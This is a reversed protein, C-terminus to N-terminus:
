RPDGGLVIDVGGLQGQLAEEISVVPAAAILKEMDVKQTASVMEKDSIGLDNRNLRRASVVVEDVAMSESELTM